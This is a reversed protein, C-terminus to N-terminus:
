RRLDGDLFEARLEADVEGASVLGAEIAILAVVAFSHGLETGPLAHEVQAAVRTTERDLSVNQAM